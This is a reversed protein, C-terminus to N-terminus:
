QPLAFTLPSQVSLPVRAVLPITRGAPGDRLVLSIKVQLPLRGPQDTAQSSDWREQWMGTLPDLYKVDFLDINEALVQVTGGRDPELDLITQERRALDVKGSVKPDPSGFYSLENQDSEHSDGMMRRHSFSNFDVRDAPSSNTGKFLTQRVILNQNLPQHMSLFASSLEWSMRRIALRGERYRQNLHGVGKKARSMGDFAGYILVSVMALIAISVLVELLTLGRARRTHRLRSM